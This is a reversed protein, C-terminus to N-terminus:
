GSPKNTEPGLDVERVAAFNPTVKYIAREAADSASKVPFPPKGEGAGEAVPRGGSGAPLLNVAAATEVTVQVVQAAERAVVDGVEVRVQDGADSAAKM